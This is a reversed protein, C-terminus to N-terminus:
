PAQYVGQPIITPLAFGYNNLLEFALVDKQELEAQTCIHWEDQSDACKDTLAPDLAGINAMLIWYFYEHAQCGYDCTEDYYTYWADQPYPDPISLFQGGRAVDMAELLKSPIFDGSNDQATGFYEPYVAYWGDSVVHWVEELNTDWTGTATIGGLAWQDEDYYMSAAMGIEDECATGQIQQWLEESKAETWVPVIYNNDVLYQHVLADDPIGDADNDIYEALVNATHVFEELPASIPAAVYIDFVNIFLDFNDNLCPMTPHEETVAFSSHIPLKELNLTCAFFTLFLSLGM